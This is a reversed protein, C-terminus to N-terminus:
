EGLSSSCIGIGCCRGEDGTNTRKTPRAKPIAAKRVAEALLDDVRHPEDALLINMIYSRSDSSVGVQFVNIKGRLSARM